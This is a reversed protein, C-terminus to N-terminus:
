DPSKEQWNKRITALQSLMQERTWEDEFFRCREFFLALDDFRALLDSQTADACPKRFWNRRSPKLWGPPPEGTALIYEGEIFYRTIASSTARQTTSIIVLAVIGAGAMAALLFLLLLDM